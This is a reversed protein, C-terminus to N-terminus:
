CNGAVIDGSYYPSRYRDCGEVASFFPTDDADDHWGDGGDVSEMKGKENIYEVPSPHLQIREGTQTYRPLREMDQEGVNNFSKPPFTEYASMDGFLQGAGESGMMWAPFSTPAAEVNWSRNQGQKSYMECTGSPENNPSDTIYDEQLGLQYSWFPNIYDNSKSSKGIKWTWFFYNQLADMSSLGFGKIQSKFTDDWSQWNNFRDCAGVGFGTEPRNGSKDVYTGEYRTGDNVGNVTGCDNIALSFEGAFTVGYSSHANTSCCCLSSFCTSACLKM